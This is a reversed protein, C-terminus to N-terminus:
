TTFHVGSKIKLRNRKIEGANLELIYKARAKPAYTKTDGMSKAPKIATVFDVVKQKKSIWLVDIPFLMHYMWISHFGENRFIVTFLMGANKALKKRFMLGIM